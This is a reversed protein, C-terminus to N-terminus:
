LPLSRLLRIGAARVRFFWPAYEVWWARNKSYAEKDGSRQFRRLQDYAVTTVRRVGERVCFDEHRTALLDNLRQIDRLNEATRMLKSTDSGSFTRYYALVDPTMVGGGFFVARAWMENDACHLLGPIYGGFEEYFSRRIVVSPFHVVPCYYFHAASRSVTELEKVRQSVSLVVGDEDVYFNRCAFFAASPNAEAVASIQSYFGSGVWDDGHLIHVLQGRSRAICSNFNANPGGNSPRRFFDVRGQGVERVVSEPDDKTSCDDVVEIQMEDPHLAQILVNHLTTRLYEACNFTPIMVSWLPRKPSHQNCAISPITLDGDLIEARPQM